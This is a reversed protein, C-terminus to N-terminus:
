MGGDHLTTVRSELKGSESLRNFTDRYAKDTNIKARMKDTSLAGNFDAVVQEELLEQASKQPVPPPLPERLGCVREIEELESIAEATLKTAFTVVYNRQIKLFAKCIVSYIEDLCAERAVIGAPGPQEVVDFYFEVQEQLGRDLTLAATIRSVIDNAGNKTLALLNKNRELFQDAGQDSLQKVIRQLNSM